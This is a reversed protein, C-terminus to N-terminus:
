KMSKKVVSVDHTGKDVHAPGTAVQFAMFPLYFLGFCAILLFPVALIIKVPLPIVLPKKQREKEQKALYDKYSIKTIVNKPKPQNDM